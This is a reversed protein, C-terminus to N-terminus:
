PSQSLHLAQKLPEARLHREGSNNGAISGCLLPLPPAPQFYRCTELWCQARHVSTSARRCSLEERVRRRTPSLGISLYWPSSSSPVNSPIRDTLERWFYWETNGLRKSSAKTGHQQVYNQPHSSSIFIEGRQKQGAREHHHLMSIWICHINIACRSYCDTRLVTINHFLSQSWLLIASYTDTADPPCNLSQQDQSLETM